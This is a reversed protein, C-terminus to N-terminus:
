GGISPTQQPTAGSIVPQTLSMKKRLHEIDSQLCRNIIDFTPNDNTEPKDNATLNELLRPRVREWLYREIEQKSLSEQQTSITNCIIEAAQLKSFKYPVIIKNDQLYYDQKKQPELHTKLVNFRQKWLLLLDMVDSHIPSEPPLNECAKSISGAIYNWLTEPDRFQNEQHPLFRAPAAKINKAIIKRLVTIIQCESVMRSENHLEKTMEVCDPILRAFDDLSLIYNCGNSAGFALSLEDSITEPASEAGEIKVEITEPAAERGEIKVALTFHRGDIEMEAM